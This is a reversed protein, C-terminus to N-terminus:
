LHNEKIYKNLYISTGECAREAEEALSLDFTIDKSRQIEASIHIMNRASYIHKVRESFKPSFVNNTTLVEVKNEFRIKKWPINVPKLKTIVVADSSHLFVNPLTDRVNKELTTPISLPKTTITGTTLKIFEPTNSLYQQLFSDVGLEIVSAYGLVQTRSEMEMLENEAQIGEFLKYSVKAGKFVALLHKRTREPVFSYFKNKEYWEDNPLVQLYKKIGQQLSKSM